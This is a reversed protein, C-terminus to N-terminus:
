NTILRREKAFRKSRREREAERALSSGSYQIECAGQALRTTAVGPIYWMNLMPRLVACNIRKDCNGNTPPQHIRASREFAVKRPIVATTLSAM